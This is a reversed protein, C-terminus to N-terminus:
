ARVLGTRVALRTLGAISDVGTKRKINERHADVTKFSIELKKGIEVATMGDAVMVLIQRERDTLGAIENVTRQM